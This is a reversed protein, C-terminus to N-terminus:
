KSELYRLVESVNRLKREAKASILSRGEWVVDLTVDKGLKATLTTTGKITRVKSSIGKTKLADAIVKAKDKAGATPRVTMRMGSRGSGSAPKYSASAENLEPHCIWCKQTREAVMGRSSTDTIQSLDEHGDDSHENEWDAEDMCPACYPFNVGRERKEVASMAPRTNCIECTRKSM